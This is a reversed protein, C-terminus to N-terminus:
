PQSAEVQEDTVRVRNCVSRRQVRWFQLPKDDRVHVIEDRRYDARRTVAHGNHLRAADTGCADLREHGIDQLMKVAAVQRRRRNRPALAKRRPVYM